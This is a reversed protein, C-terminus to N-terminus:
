HSLQWGLIVAVSATAGIGIAELAIGSTLLRAMRKNQINLSTLYKALYEAVFKEWGAGSWEKDDNVFRVLADAKARDLNRPRNVVLAFVTSLVFAGLALALLVFATDPVDPLGRPGVAVALLGSVIAVFGGAIGTIALARVQMADFVAESREVEKEILQGLVNEM